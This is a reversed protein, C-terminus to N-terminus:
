KKQRRNEKNAKQYAIRKQKSKPNVAPPLVNKRQKPTTFPKIIEGDLHVVDGESVLAGITALKKNITVRRDAIAQDAERRSFLGTAKVFKNIRIGSM